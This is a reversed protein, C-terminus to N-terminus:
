RSSPCFGSGGLKLELSDQFPQPQGPAPTAPPHKTRSRPLGTEKRALIVKYGVAEKLRFKMGAPWGRAFLFSDCVQGQIGPAGRTDGGELARPPLVHPDVPPWPLPWPSGDARTSAPTIACPRCLKIVLVGEQRCQPTHSYSPSLSPGWAEM